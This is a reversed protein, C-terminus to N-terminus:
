NGIGPMPPSRVNRQIKTIQSVRRPKTYTPHRWNSRQFQTIAEREIRFFPVPFFSELELQTGTELSNTAYNM